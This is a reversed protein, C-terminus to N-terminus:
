RGVPPTGWRRRDNERDDWRGAGWRWNPRRWGTRLPLESGLGKEEKPGEAGGQKAMRWASGAKIDADYAIVLEGASLGSHEGFIV